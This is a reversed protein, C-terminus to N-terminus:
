NGFLGNSSIRIAAPGILVIFLAPMICFMLPFLLKVPLKMANEEARQRRKQRLEQSQIRLV